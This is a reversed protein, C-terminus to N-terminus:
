PGCSHAHRVSEIWPFKALLSEILRAAAASDKEMRAVKHAV